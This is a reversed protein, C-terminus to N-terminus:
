MLQKTSLNRIEKDVFCNRVSHFEGDKKVSFGDEDHYVKVKGLKSSASLYTKEIQVPKLSSFFFVAVLLLLRRYSKLM